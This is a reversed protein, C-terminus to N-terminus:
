YKLPRKLINSNMLSFYTNYYSKKLKEKIKMYKDYDTLYKELIKGSYMTKMNKVYYVPLKEKRRMAQIITNM